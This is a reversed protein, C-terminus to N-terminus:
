RKRYNHLSKFPCIYVSNRLPLGLLPLKIWKWALLASKHKHMGIMIKGEALYKKINLTKGDKTFNKWLKMFRAKGASSNGQTRHIWILTSLYSGSVEWSNWWTEWSETDVNELICSM